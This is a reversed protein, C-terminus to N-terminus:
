FGEFEVAGISVPVDVMETNQSIVGSKCWKFIFRVHVYFASSLMRQSAYLSHKRKDYIPKQDLLKAFFYIIKFDISDNIIQLM